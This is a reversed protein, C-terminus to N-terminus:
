LYDGSPGAQRRRDPPGKVSLPPRNYRGRCCIVLRLISVASRVHSVAGTYYRMVASEKLPILHFNRM